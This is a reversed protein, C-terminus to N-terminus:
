RLQIPVIASAFVFGASRLALIPSNAKGCYNPHRDPNQLETERLRVARRKTTAAAAHDRSRAPM